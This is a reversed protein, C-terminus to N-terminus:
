PAPHIHQSVRWAHARERDRDSAILSLSKDAEARQVHDRLQEITQAVKNSNSKLTQRSAVQQLAVWFGIACAATMACILIFFQVFTAM